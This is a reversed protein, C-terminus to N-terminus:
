WTALWRLHPQDSFLAEFGVCRLDALLELKGDLVESVVSGTQVVYAETAKLCDDWLYEGDQFTQANLAMRKAIRESTKM